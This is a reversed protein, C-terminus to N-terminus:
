ASPMGTPASGHAPLPHAKASELTDEIMARHLLAAALPQKGELARAAPDLVFYLNGDIERSRELILRAAYRLEPWGTLFSMTMAFHPFGLVHDLAKQEAVVDEFDPLAKLYAPLAGCGPPGRIADLPVAPSRGSPQHRLTRCDSGAGM